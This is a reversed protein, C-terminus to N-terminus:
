GSVGFNATDDSLWSPTDAKSDVHSYTASPIVERLPPSKLDRFRLSAHTDFVWRGPQLAPWAVSVGTRSVRRWFAWPMVTQVDSVSAVGPRVSHCM